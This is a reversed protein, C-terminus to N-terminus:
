PAFVEAVSVAASKTSAQGTEVVQSQGCRLMHLTRGAREDRSSHWCTHLQEV